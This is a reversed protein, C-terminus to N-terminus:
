AVAESELAVSEPSRSRKKSELREMVAKDCEQSLTIDDIEDNSLEHATFSRKTGDCKFQSVEVLFELAKVADISVVETEYTRANFLMGSCPADKELALLACYVLAQLRHDDALETVFKVELLDVAKGKPSVLGEGMWDCIGKVGEVTQSEAEDMITISEPFQFQMPREFVSKSSEETEPVEKGLQMGANKM